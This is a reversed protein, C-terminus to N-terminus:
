SYTDRFYKNIRENNSKHENDKPLISHVDVKEISLERLGEDIACFDYMSKMTQMTDQMIKQSLEASM